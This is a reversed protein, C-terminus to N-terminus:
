INSFDIDGKRKYYENFIAMSAVMIAIIVGLMQLGTLSLLNYATTVTLISTMLLSIIWSTTMARSAMKALREDKHRKGLGLYGWYFIVLFVPFITLDEAITAPAGLALGGGIFILMVVMVWYGFRLLNESMGKQQSRISEAPM